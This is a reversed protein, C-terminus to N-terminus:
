YRHTKELASLRYVEQGKQMYRPTAESASLLPEEASLLAALEIRDVGLAVAYACYDPLLFEESSPLYGGRGFLIETKGSFGEPAFVIEAGELVESSASIEASIGFDKLWSNYLGNADTDTCVSVSKARPLIKSARHLFSGNKDLIGVSYSESAALIFEAFSNFLINKRYEFSSFKSFEASFGGSAIVDNGFRMLKRKLRRKSVKDGALIVCLRGCLETKISHRQGRKNNEAVFAVM